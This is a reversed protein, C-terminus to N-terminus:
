TLLGGNVRLVQGTVYSAEDSALFAVARAVEDPRGVRGLPIEEIWRERTAPPMGALMDTEIFGPSVANVRINWCALERALTKTVGVLAAKSAAYAVQGPNGREGVISAVNVVAGGGQKHMPRAAAKCLQFAGGVNVAFQRDWDEPKVRLALANVHVGANNVLVDLRGMLALVEGVTRECSHPDAVDLRFARAPARGVEALLRSTAGAAEEGEHWTFAVAAGRRALELCCARGIGRSGGTVLAVQGEFGSM